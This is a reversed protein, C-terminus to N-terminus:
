WNGDLTQRKWKGCKKCRLYVSMGIQVDHKDVISRTEITEWEHLHGLFLLHLLRLM